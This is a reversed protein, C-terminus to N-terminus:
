KVEVTITENAKLTIKQNHANGSAPVVKLDYEGAPVMLRQASANFEDAHGMFKENLFVAAFKDSPCQIRIMGFPGQAQPLAKMTEAIVTTKGEPVDITKTVAEYRPEDLKLEHKGPTVVYTRSVKFNAAPGLYKGDLFVGTRGPEVKLKIATQNAAWAQGALLILFSCVAGIMSKRM